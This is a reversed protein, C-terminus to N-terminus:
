PRAARTAASRRRVSARRGRQMGYPSRSPCDRHQAEGERQLRRAPPRARRRHATERLELEDADRHEDDLALSVREPNRGGCRAPLYDPHRTVVTQPRIDLRDGLPEFRAEPM